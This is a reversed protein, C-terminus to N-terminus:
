YFRYKITHLSRDYSLANKNLNFVNNLHNIINNHIYENFESSPSPVFYKYKAIIESPLPFGNIIELANPFNGCKESLHQKIYYEYQTYIHIGYQQLFQDIEIIKLQQNKHIIAKINHSLPPPPSLSLPLSLTFVSSETYSPLTSAFVSEYSPPPHTANTKTKIGICVNSSVDNEMSNTSISLSNGM